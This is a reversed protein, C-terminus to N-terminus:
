SFDRGLFIVAALIAGIALPGVYRIFFRWAGYKFWSPTEDDVLEDETAERTIFWGAALTILFGGTPLAWNAAFHDLTSFVGAKGEFLEFGSLAPVAGFSLAALLTVVFISGGCMVTAKQRSWEKEDIFYSVVVELMSITSTLAAFGVLIYFLPALVVGGPVVEYFLQPLSIFLMGVPSGTIEEVMGPVSFVVSFM